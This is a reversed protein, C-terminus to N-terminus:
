FYASLDITSIGTTNVSVSKGLAPCSVTVTSGKIVNIQAYGESNTYVSVDEVGIIDTDINYADALNIVVKAGKWRKIVRTTSVPEPSSYIPIKTTTTISGGGYEEKFAVSTYQSTRDVKANSLVTEVFANFEAETPFETLNYVAFPNRNIYQGTDPFTRVGSASFADNAYTVTKVVTASTGFGDDLDMFNDLYSHALSSTAFTRTPITVEYGASIVDIGIYARWKPPASPDPTSTVEDTYGVIVSEPQTVYNELVSEEDGAATGDVKLITMTLTTMDGTSVVNDIVTMQDRRYADVGLSASVLNGIISYVGASLNLIDDVGFSFNLTTTSLVLPKELVALGGPYVAYVKVTGTWDTATAIEAATYMGSFNNGKQVIISM